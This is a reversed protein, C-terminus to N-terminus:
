KKIYESKKGTNNSGGFDGTWGQICSNNIVPSGEDSIQAFEGVANAATNGWLLCHELTVLSGGTSALGGGVDGSHNGQLICDTLIPNSGVDSFMGGGNDEASNDNFSCDSLEPHAGVAWLMGNYMGGGLSSSNNNFKCGDLVPVSNDMNCMGGGYTATNNNFKCDTLEPTAYYFAIMGGGYVASNDTFKCNILVASTVGDNAMGGGYIASNGHFECDILEPSSYWIVLGGGNLNPAANDNFKCDILTPNSAYLAMGGGAYDSFNGNFVCHNLEPNGFLNYMGGGYLGVSNDSITCHNFIPNSNAGRNEVAGAGWLAYNDQFICDNVTPGGEINFMGGGQDYRVVVDGIDWPGDAYGDEITFGEIVASTDTYSGIVVHYCNDSNDGIIGIDGSLISEGGFGGLLTVGNILQFTASRPYGATELNSPKYIGAAVWIEKGAEAADLADQLDIYADDWSSGDNAGTAGADVFIQGSVTTALTTLIITMLCMRLQYKERLM